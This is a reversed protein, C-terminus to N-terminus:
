ICKDSKWRIYFVKHRSSEKIFEQVLLNAKIKKAKFGNIVSQTEALVVGRGQNDASELLKVIKQHKKVM